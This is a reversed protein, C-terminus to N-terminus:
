GAGVRRKQKAAYKELEAVLKAKSLVLLGEGAVDLQWVVRSRRVLLQVKSGLRPSQFLAIQEDGQAPFNFVSVSGRRMQTKFTSYATRAQTASGTTVVMGIVSEYRPSNKPFQASFFAGKAQVRLAALGQTFSAPMRGWTYTTSSPFDTRALVLRAPDAASGTAGASAVTTAGLGSVLLLVLAATQVKM